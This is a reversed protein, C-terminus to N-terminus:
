SRAALKCSAESSFIVSLVMLFFDKAEPENGGHGMIAQPNLKNNFVFRTKGDLDFLCCVIDHM